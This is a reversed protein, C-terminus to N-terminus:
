AGRQTTIRHSRGRRRVVSHHHRTPSIARRAQSTTERCPRPRRRPCSSATESDNRERTEPTTTRGVRTSGEQRDPATSRKHAHEHPDRGSNNDIVTFGSMTSASRAAPRSHQGTHSRDSDRQPNARSRSTRISSPTRRNRGRRARHPAQSVVCTSSSAQETGRRRSPASTIPWANNALACPFPCRTIAARSPRAGDVTRPQSRAAERRASVSHTAARRHTRASSAAGAGALGAPEGSPSATSASPLATRSHLSRSPIRAPGHSSATASVPPSNHPETGSGSPRGLEHRDLPMSAAGPCGSSRHPVRGYPATVAGVPSLADRALAGWPRRGTRGGEDRRKPGPWWELGKNRL